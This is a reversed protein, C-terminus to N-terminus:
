SCTSTLQGRECDDDLTTLLLGVVTLQKDCKAVSCPRAASLTQSSTGSPLLSIKASVKTEKFYLIYYLNLLYRIHCFDTSVHLQKSVIGAHRHYVYVCACVCLGMDLVASYLAFISVHIKIKDNSCM